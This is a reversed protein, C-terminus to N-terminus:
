PIIQRSKKGLISVAEPRIAALSETHIVGLYNPVTAHSKLGAKIAWRAQDELLLVLSQELTVRLKLEPLAASIMNEETGLRKAIIAAAQGPHAYTFQEAQILARLMKQAVGPKTEILSKTVIFLEMQEYIGPASFIKANGGLLEGAKSIFPERMSFADIKGRALAEPLEEAKMFSQKIAKESLGHELLFLHLFFHVASARQTAVRKGRLDKAGAIDSDKRAIVRNVNDAKFITAIIRFDSREFGAFTIPVDSASTADVKGPLLGENLARKGSPYAVITIDLGQDSFYTKELAVLFLASSPALSLGMRLSERNQASPKLARDKGPLLYVGLGLAVAVLGAVLGIAWGRRRVRSSPKHEKEGIAAKM